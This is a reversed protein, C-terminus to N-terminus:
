TYLVCLIKLSVWAGVVETGNINLVNQFPHDSDFESWIALHGYFAHKMPPLTFPGFISLQQKIFLEDM